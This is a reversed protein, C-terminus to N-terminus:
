VLSQSTKVIFEMTENACRAWSYQESLKKSTEGSYERLKVDLILREIADAISDDNEPDFYVGGDVLVEPMPGRNSCAIPLGVAMAELLTNPMNECSSAFVFLDADTLYNSIEKQSVFDHLKVFHGHPDSIAVQERLLKLGNGTGGGVLTLTIQHGQYRLKEVARVVAWPHKYMAANSVYLCRIPREGPMPWAHLKKTNKFVPGIGHPVYAINSLIGCSKQIMEAAYKTLFIAGDASSLSKNQIYRLAILRLRAKSYGFREMEGPEYSLMDRSMTVSPKFRSVSGADTNLLISCGIKKLEKPLQFRQWLMQNIISCERKFVCHKVLWSINPLAHLLAPYSWVHIAQIGYKLPEAEQLLGILHAKAGGSHNRSADIGLIFPKEKCFNNLPKRKFILRM